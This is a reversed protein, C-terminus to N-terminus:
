WRYMFIMMVAFTGMLINFIIGCFILYDKLAEYFKKSFFDSFNEFEREVLIPNSDDLIESVASLLLLNM